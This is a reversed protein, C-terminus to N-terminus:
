EENGTQIAQELETALKPKLAKLTALDKEADAKRGMKMFLVGRYEYAEALNPKLQIAKNYHELASSYNKPGQKRLSYGLNNHAEAFNANESLAQEFKVQAEAYKKAHMLEIGQNYAQVPRDGQETKLAAGGPRSGAGFAAGTGIIYIAVLTFYRKM